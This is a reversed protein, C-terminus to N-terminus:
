GEAGEWYVAKLAHVQWRAHDHLADMEPVGLPGFSTPVRNIEAVKSDGGMKQYIARAKSLDVGVQSLFEERAPLADGEPLAPALTRTRRQYEDRIGRLRWHPVRSLFHSWDQSLRVMLLRREPMDPNENLYARMEESEAAEQRHLAGLLRSREVEDFAHHRMHRDEKDNMLVGVRELVPASVAGMFLGRMRNGFGGPTWVVDTAGADSCVMNWTSFESMPNLLTQLGLNELVGGDTLAFLKQARLAETDGWGQPVHKGRRLYVPPLGVPFAASAAAALAVKYKPLPMWESFAKSEPPILGITKFGQRAFKGVQGHNMVTVNMVLRPREPLDPLTMKKLLTRDFVAALLNTRTYGPWATLLLRPGFARKVFGLSLEGRLDSLFLDLSTGKALSAMWAAGFVSGGSVTSVVELVDLLGAESLGKVTGCHFAAARSGGGSLALGLSM